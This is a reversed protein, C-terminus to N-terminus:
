KEDTSGVGSFVVVVCEVGDVTVRQGITLPAPHAYLPRVNRQGEGANPHNYSLQPGGWNMYVGTERHRAKALEFEWAVPESIRQRERMPKAFRGLASRHEVSLGPWTAPDVSSMVAEMAEREGDASVPAATLALLAMNLRAAAPSVHGSWEREEDGSGIEQEFDNLRDILFAAAEVVGATPETKPAAALYARRNWADPAEFEYGPETMFSIDCEDCRVQTKTVINRSWLSEDQHTSVSPEGGCFPCPLLAVAGADLEKM